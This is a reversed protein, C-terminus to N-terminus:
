RGRDPRSGRVAVYERLGGKLTFGRAVEFPTLLEEVDAPLLRGRVLRAPGVPECRVRDVDLLTFRLAPRRTRDESTDIVLHLRADPATNATLWEVLRPRERPFFRDLTDWAFVIDYPRDPQPSVAALASALGREEREAHLDLFRVQGAFRRYIQLSSGSAPGLDLVAHSGNEGVAEFLAAVGPAAREVPETRPESDSDDPSEDSPRLLNGIRRLWGM